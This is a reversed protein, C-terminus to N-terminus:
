PSPSGAGVLIGIFQHLVPHPAFPLHQSPLAERVGFMDRSRRLSEYTSLGYPDRILVDNPVGHGILILEMARVENYGERRGDGSLLLREVTGQRYLALGTLIRDELMLTPRGDPLVGASRPIDSRSFGKM